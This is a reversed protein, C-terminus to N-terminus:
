SLHIAQRFCFDFLLRCERRQVLRCLEGTTSRGQVSAACMDVFRYPEWDSAEVLWVAARDPETAGLNNERALERAADSLPAFIPHIGVRRFWYKANDFDGERRHMIAHWYSGTPTDISQSISHSQDLHDYMLWLGALCANAMNQNIIQHPAFADALSIGRIAVAAAPDPHGAGLENLPAAAILPGFIPGLTSCDIVPIDSM